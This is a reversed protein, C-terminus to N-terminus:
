LTYDIKEGEVAKLVSNLYAMASVIQDRTEDEGIELSKSIDPIMNAVKALRTQAQTLTM